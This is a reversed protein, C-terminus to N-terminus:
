LCTGGGGSRERSEKSVIKKKFFRAKSKCIKILGRERDVRQVLPWSGQFM